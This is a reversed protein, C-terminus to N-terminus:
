SHTSPSGFSRKHGSPKTKSSVLLRQLLHSWGYLTSQPSRVSNRINALLRESKECKCLIHNITFCKRRHCCAHKWESWLALVHFLRNNGEYFHFKRADRHFCNGCMRRKGLHLIYRSCIYRFDGNRHSNLCMRKAPCPLGHHCSHPQFLRMSPRNRTDPAYISRGFQGFWQGDESRERCRNDFTRRRGSRFRASFTNMRHPRLKWRRVSANRDASLHEPSHPNTHVFDLSFIFLNERGRICAKKHGQGGNDFYGNKCSVFKKNNFNNSYRWIFILSFWSFHFEDFLQEMEDNLWEHLYIWSKLLKSYCQLFTKHVRTGTSPFNITRPCRNISLKYNEM